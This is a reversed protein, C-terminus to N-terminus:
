WRHPHIVVAAQPTQQAGNTTSGHQPAHAEWCSGRGNQSVKTVSNPCQCRSPHVIWLRGSPKCGMATRALVGCRGRM